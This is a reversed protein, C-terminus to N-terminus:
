SKRSPSQQPLQKEVEEASRGPWQTIIIIQTNTVDPFTEIPTDRYCMYGIVALIGTLFFVFYRHRLSFYIIQKILKNM